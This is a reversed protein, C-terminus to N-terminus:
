LSLVYEALDGLQQKSLNSTMGHKDGKNHTTLVSMIDAASGDNLYPATRWVEVLSSTDFKLNAENYVGTGVNYAKLNTYYPGSHCNACGAQTFLKKGRLASASLKGHQLYPSKVPQMGTLYSDIAKADSGPRSAFQIFKMGARVATEAKDRVALSMVPPTKHSLLMSRTNKPNGMGDNMLDWNLSDARSDPHCSACSQWNEYCMTGDNFLMEGRRSQSMVTQKVLPWRGALASLDLRYLEIDQTFTNAVFANQGVVCIVRPGNGKLTVRQRLGNLFALDDPVGNPDACRELKRHLAIRDIVTLEQAGASSVLLKKGDATVSVAWPNASGRNVDDLLVTNLYQRKAIDLVSLANTNMWGRDLQTTPMGYRAIIHTIYAFKGDPSVALGRVGSSGNPLLVNKIVKRSRLDVLTVGAAVYNADAAQTPLHNAVVAMRGDPTVGVAVPERLCKIKSVIKSKGLDVLVLENQFRLCVAAMNGNNYIVPSMPIHGLLVSAIRKGSRTDYTNIVGDSEGEAVYLKQSNQSLVIGHAPQSTTIMRLQKHSQSNWVLVEPSRDSAVYLLKGDPSALIASASFLRGADRAQAQMLWATTTAVMVTVVIITARIIRNRAMGTQPKVIHIIM